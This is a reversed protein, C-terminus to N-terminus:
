FGAIFSVIRLDVYLGELVSDMPPMLSSFYPAIFILWKM